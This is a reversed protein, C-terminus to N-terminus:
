VEPAAPKDALRADVPAPAAPAPAAAPVAPQPAPPPAPQQAPVLVASSAALLAFVAISLLTRTRM